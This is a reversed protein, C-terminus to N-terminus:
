LHSQASSKHGIPASLSDARYFRGEKLDLYCFEADLVRAKDGSKGHLAVHLLPQKVSLCSRAASELFLRQCHLNLKAVLVVTLSCPDEFKGRVGRSEDRHGAVVNEQVTREEGHLVAGEIVVVVSARDRDDAVAPGSFM